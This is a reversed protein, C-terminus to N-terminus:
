KVGVKYFINPIKKKIAKLLKLTKRVTSVKKSSEGYRSIFLTASDEHEGQIKKITNKCATYKPRINKKFNQYKSFQGVGLKHGVRREMDSSVWKGWLAKLNECLVEKVYTSHILDAELLAQLIFPCEGTRITCYLYVAGIHKIEYDDFPEFDLEQGESLLSTKKLLKEVKVITRSQVKQFTNEDEEGELNIGGITGQQKGKPADASAKDPGILSYTLITTAIVCAVLCTARLVWLIFKATISSLLNIKNPKPTNNVYM